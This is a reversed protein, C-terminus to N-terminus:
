RRYGGYRSAGYGGRGGYGGGYGGRGGYGGYGGRSGYGYGGYRSGGGYGGGYGGGISASYDAVRRREVLDAPIEKVFVSPDVPFMGGDATKRVQPSFLYLKDKARTVAVYFLRREEDTRGEEVAKGSPFLGETVWPVFVVPWEM